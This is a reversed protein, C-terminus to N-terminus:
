RSVLYNILGAHELFTHIRIIDLMDIKLASKCASFSLYYSPNKKYTEIM